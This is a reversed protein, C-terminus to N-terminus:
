RKRRLLGLIGFASLLLTSPEPVAALQFGSNTTNVLQAASTGLLDETITSPNFNVAGAGPVNQGQYVGVFSNDGNALVIYTKNGVDGMEQPGVSTLAGNAFAVPGRVNGPSAATSPGLLGEFSGIFDASGLIGTIDSPALDVSTSYFRAGGTVLTDSLGETILGVSQNTVGALTVTVASSNSVSAAIALVFTIAKIKM